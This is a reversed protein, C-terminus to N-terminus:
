KKCRVKGLDIHSKNCNVVVNTECQKNNANLYVYTLKTGDTIHSITRQQGRGYFENEMGVFTYNYSAPIDAYFSALCTKHITTKPTYINGSYFLEDWQEKQLKYQVTEPVIELKNYGFETSSILMTEGQKVQKDNIVFKILSNDTITPTKVLYAANTNTTSFLYASPTLYLNTRMSVSATNIGTSYTGNNVNLDAQYEAIDTTYTGNTLNYNSSNAGLYITNSLKLDNTDNHYSTTNNVSYKNYSSSHSLSTSSTVNKAFNFNISLGLLYNFSSNNYELTAYARTPVGNLTLSKYLTSSLIRTSDFDYNGYASFQWDKENYNYQIRAYKSASSSFDDTFGNYLNASYQSKGNTYNSLISSYINAKQSISASITCDFNKNSIYDYEAGIYSTDNAFTYFIDSEGNFLTYGKKAHFYLQKDKFASKFYNSELGAIIEVGSYLWNYRSGQNSFFKSTEEIQNTVLDRKSITINYTGQPFNNTDIVNDGQLLTGRYLVRGRYKIEVYYPKTLTINLPAKYSSYFKNNILKTNETIFVGWVNGYPNVVSTLSPEKYGLDYTYKKGHYELYLDNVHDTITNNIDYIFSNRGSSTSGNAQWKIANYDSYHDYYAYLSSKLAPTLFNPNPNYLNHKYQIVNDKLYKNPVLIYLNLKNYNFYCTIKNDDQAEYFKNLTANAPIKHKLVNPLYIQGQKTLKNKYYEIIKQQAQKSLTISDETDNYHINEDGIDNYNDLLTVKGDYSNDLDEFGAPVNSTNTSEKVKVNKPTSDVAPISLKTQGMIHPPQKALSLPLLVIAILTKIYKM